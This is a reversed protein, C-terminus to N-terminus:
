SVKLRRKRPTPEPQVERKKVPVPKPRVELLEVGVIADTEMVVSGSMSKWRSITGDLVFSGTHVVERGSRLFVYRIRAHDVESLWSV